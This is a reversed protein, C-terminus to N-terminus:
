NPLSPLEFMEDGIYTLPEYSAETDKFLGPISIVGLASDAILLTRQSQGWCCDTLPLFLFVLSCTLKILFLLFSSSFGHSTTTLLWSFLMQLVTHYVVVFAKSFHSLNPTIWILILHTDVLKPWEEEWIHSILLHRVKIGWVKALPWLFSAFLM